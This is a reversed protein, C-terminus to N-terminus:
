YLLKKINKLNVLFIEWELKIKFKKWVKNRIDEGLLELDLSTASRKNIFFNSSLKFSSGEM